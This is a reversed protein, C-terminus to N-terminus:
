KGELKGLSGEIRSLRRDMESIQSAIAILSTEIRANMKASTEAKAEIKFVYMALGIATSVSLGGLSATAFLWSIPIVTTDGLNM